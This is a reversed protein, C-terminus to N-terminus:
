PASRLTSGNGLRVKLTIQPPFSDTADLFVYFMRITTNPDPKWSPSLQAQARETSTRATIAQVDPRAFGSHIALGGPGGAGGILRVPNRALERRFFRRGLCGINGLRREGDRAIATCISGDATRYGVATARKGDPLTVEFPPSVSEADAPRVQPVPPEGPPTDDESTPPPPRRDLLDDIAPVRTSVGTVAGTVALAAGTLMVLGGVLAALVLTRRRRRRASATRRAAAVLEDRLATIPDRHREGPASM